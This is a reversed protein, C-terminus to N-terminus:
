CICDQLWDVFESINSYYNPYARRLDEVSGARALLYVLGEGGSAELETYKKAADDEQAGTFTELSVQQVGIDVTILCSYSRDIELDPECIVYMSNTAERLISLVHLDDNLARLEDRAALEDDVDNSMLAAALNFFRRQERTGGGFKLTSGSIMDYIEVATAWDHQLRTRLQVEVDLNKYGYSEANYRCIMHIGRYGSNKPSSIYDKVDRCQGSMQIAESLQRVAEESQLILRCGAIDRLTTLIFTHGPRNLKNIITDIRKLRSVLVTSDDQGCVDELMSLAKHLPEMHAARWHGVMQLAESKEDGVLIGAALDEGARRIKNKSYRCDM